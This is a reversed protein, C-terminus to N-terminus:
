REQSEQKVASAQELIATAGRRAAEDRTGLMAALEAVRAGEDLSEVATVTRGNSQGKSVHFHADGYGALQPLHTVVVVQHDGRASLGWLKRGVVDGVFMLSPVLFPRDEGEPDTLILQWSVGFRDQIWGYLESFPYEDLPM